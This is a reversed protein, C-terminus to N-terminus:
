AAEALKKKRGTKRLLSSIDKMTIRMARIGGDREAFSNFIQLKRALVSEIWEEITDSAYYEIVHVKTGEPLGIGRLGGAASRGIAQKMAMPSWDKDSFLVYTAANLTIAERNAGITGIYLKCDDDYNFKDEQASRKAGKVTGDVYAPNYEEFERQLIRAAKKWQSFVIAKHGAAVLQEIDERMAEIKVSKKSGGYLEPSFCAQKLRTMRTLKNAIKKKSGDEFELTLDDVIQNYLRKQEATLEVDRRVYVVEPLQDDVHERRRRISRAAIYAKLEIIKEPKYGIVTEGDAKTICYTQVFHYFTPFRAPDLKHLVTWIEEIRNLIPTGSMLLWRKAQLAFFGNTTQADPNKVRHHEDVIAFEYVRPDGYADMFLDPHVPDYDHTRTSRDYERRVRLTEFNIITLDAGSRIQEERQPKTGDVVQYTFDDDFLRDIIRKTSWKASNPGVYIAPFWRNRVATGVAQITKGLGVDDNLMFGPVPEGYMAENLEESLEEIESLHREFEEPTLADIEADIAQEIKEISIKQFDYLEAEEELMYDYFGPIEIDPVPLKALEKKQKKIMYADLGASVDVGPFAILIRELWSLAFRYTYQQKMPDFERIPAAGRLLDEEIVQHLDTAQDRKVLLRLHRGRPDGKESFGLRLPAQKM